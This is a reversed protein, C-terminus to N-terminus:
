RDSTLTYLFSLTVTKGMCKTVRWTGMGKGMAFSDSCAIVYGRHTYSFTAKYLSLSLKYEGKAESSGRKDTYHVAVQGFPGKWKAQLIVSGLGEGKRTFDYTDSASFLLYGTALSLKVSSSKKRKRIASHGGYIPKSGQWDEMAFTTRFAKCELDLAFTYRLPYPSQGFAMGLTYPGSALSSSFFGEVGQIPTFVAEAHLDFFSPKLVIKTAVGWRADQAGWASHFTFVDQKPAVWALASFDARSTEKEYGIAQMKKTSFLIMFRKNRAEYLLARQKSFFPLLAYEQWFGAYGLSVSANGVGLTFRSPLLLNLEDPAVFALQGDWARKPGQETVSITYKKEEPYLAFSISSKAPLVYLLVLTCFLLLKRM